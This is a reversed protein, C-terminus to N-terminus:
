PLSEPSPLKLGAQRQKKRELSLQSFTPISLPCCLPPQPSHPPSCFLQARSRGRKAGDGDRGGGAALAQRRRPPTTGSGAGRLRPGSGPRPLATSLSPPPLLPLARHAARLPGPGAPPLPPRQASLASSHSQIEERSADATLRPRQSLLMVSLYLFAFNGKLPHLFPAQFSPFM